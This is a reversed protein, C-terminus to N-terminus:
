QYGGTIWELTEHLIVCGSDGSWQWLEPSYKILTMNQDKELVDFLHGDPHSM